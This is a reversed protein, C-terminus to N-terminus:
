YSVHSHTAVIANTSTVGVVPVSVVWLSLAVRYHLGYDQGLQAAVRPMGATCAGM